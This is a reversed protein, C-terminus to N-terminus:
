RSFDEKIKERKEVIEKSHPPSTLTAMLPTAGVGTESIQWTCIKDSPTIDQMSQQEAMIKAPGLKHPTANAYIMQATITSSDKPLGCRSMISLLLFSITDYNLVTAIFGHTASLCDTPYASTPYISGPWRCSLNDLAQVRGLMTSAFMNRSQSVGYFSASLGDWMPTPTFYQSLCPPTIDQLNSSTPNFIGTIQVSM